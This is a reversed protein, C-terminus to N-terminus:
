PCNGMDHLWCQLFLVLYIMSSLITSKLPQSLLTLTNNLFKFNCDFRWKHGGRMLSWRKKTILKGFCWFDGLSTVINPVEQLCDGRKLSLSWKLLQEFKRKNKVEQFHGSSLDYLSFKFYPENVCIIIHCPLDSCESQNKRPQSKVM